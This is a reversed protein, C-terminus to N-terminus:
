HSGNVLALRVAGAPTAEAPPAVDWDAPRHMALQFHDCGRGCGQHKAFWDDARKMSAATYQADNGAREALCLAHELQPHHACVLFLRNASM